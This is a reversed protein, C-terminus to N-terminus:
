PQLNKGLALTMCAARATTTNLFTNSNTFMLQLLEATCPVLVIYGASPHIACLCHCKVCATYGSLLPHLCLRCRQLCLRCRQVHMLEPTPENKALMLSSSHMVSWSNWPRWTKKSLVAHVYMLCKFKLDARLTKKKFKSKFKSRM